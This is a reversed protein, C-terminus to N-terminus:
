SYYGLQSILLVVYVVVGQSIPWKTREALVGHCVM